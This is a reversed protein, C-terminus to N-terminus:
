NLDKLSANVEFHTLSYIWNEVTLHIEVYELHVLHIPLWFQSKPMFLSLFVTLQVEALQKIKV